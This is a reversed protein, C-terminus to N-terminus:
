IPDRGATRTRERRTLLSEHGLLLIGLGISAGNALPGFTFFTYPLLSGLGAIVLLARMVPGLFRSFFGVVAVSFFYVGTLCTSFILLIEGASGDMLLAPSAVFVFPIIYAVWGLKMSAWGTQMPSSRSITAAAFAALAIPPTIMSMMGFYFIFMHASLESVGSEVIAPAVLTALLIYVGVTPMGMGLIICVVAAIILLLGLNGGGMHVLAMALAGGLGTINLVGIVFGAGGLIMFLQMCILSTNPLTSLIDRLKLKKDGYGRILGFVVILASAYLAAVEAEVLLEFLSYLLVVFPLIFHWGNKMVTRLRPIEERVVAIEYRAAVLDVQIFIAAYYLMAPIIAAVIVDAYDIELFEAILFAAAGMIPPMLQGGTSSVAEIAAANVASYGSRRMMPITIVGTSAVNSVATGSISGFFASAVVAIKAAGGRRRGMIAMALDTLFQGGGAAFLLQGMLIFMLVITSGVKMPIGLVANTDLALYNMLQEFGVPRGELQGPVLDAVLGYVIFAIVVFFLTFGAARRMGEMVLTVVIIGIILTETTRSSVDILLREYQVTVHVLTALGLVAAVLDYWPVRLRKGKRAPVSVYVMALALGLVMALLQEPFLDFGLLAHVELVWLIPLIVLLSGIIAVVSRQIPSGFTEHDTPGKDTMIPSDQYH